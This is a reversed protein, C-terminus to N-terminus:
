RRRHLLALFRQAQHGCRSLWTVRTVKNDERVTWPAEAKLWKHVDRPKQEVHDKEHESLWAYGNPLAKILEAKGVASYANPMEEVVRWDKLAKLTCVRYLSTLYPLPYRSFDRPRETFMLTELTWAEVKSRLGKANYADKEHTRKTEAQAEGATQWAKVFKQSLREDLERWASADGPKTSYPVVKEQWFDSIPHLRLFNDLHDTSVEALFKRVKIYKKEFAQTAVQGDLQSIWLLVPIALFVVVTLSWLGWRIYLIRHDGRNLPNLPLTAQAIGALGLVGFFVALWVSARQLRDGERVRREDFAMGITDLLMRYSEAVRGADASAEKVQRRLRDLPGGRLTDRLASGGSRFAPHDLERDFRDAVEDATFEIHSQADNINRVLQNVDAVSQLLTQHVMEISRHVMELGRKRAGPLFRARRPDPLLRALADWLTGAQEAVGQYIKLFNRRIQMRSDIGGLESAAYAELDTLIRVGVAAAEEQIQYWRPIDDQDRIPTWTDPILLYRPEDLDGYPLFRRYANIGGKLLAHPLSEYNQTWLIENSVEPPIGLKKVPGTVDGKGLTDQRYRKPVAVLFSPSLYSRGSVRMTKRATPDVHKRLAPISNSSWDRMLSYADLSYSDKDGFEDRKPMNIGDPCHHSSRPPDSWFSFSTHWLVSDNPVRQFRMDILVWYETSGDCELAARYWDAGMFLRTRFLGGWDDVQHIPTKASKDSEAM